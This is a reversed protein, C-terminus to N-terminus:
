YNIKKNDKKFYSYAILFIALAIGGLACIIGIYVIAPRFIFLVQHHGSQIEVGRFATNVELINQKKGDVYVTWGSDYIDSTVLIGPSQSDVSIIVSNTNYEEISLTYDSNKKYDSSHTLNGKVLASKQPMFTDSNILSNLIEISTADDYQEYEYVMWAPATEGYRNHTFLIIDKTSETDYDKNAIFIRKSEEFGIDTITQIFEDSDEASAILYRINNLFFRKDINWNTHMNMVSNYIPNVYGFADYYGLVAAVNRPYCDVSSWSMIRYLNELTPTDEEWIAKASDVAASIKETRGILAYRGLGSLAQILCIICIGFMLGNLIINRINAKLFKWICAGSLICIVTVGSYLTFNKPLINILIIIAIGINLAILNSFLSSVLETSFIKELTIGVLISGSIAVLPIYLFPERIQNYFPIYYFIETFVFSISYFLSLIFTFQAAYFVTPKVKNKIFFGAFVLLTFTITIGLRGINNGLLGTFGTSDVAAESFAYYSMSSMGQVSGDSVFRYSKKLFEIFPLLVPISIAGAILGSIISTITLDVLSTKSKRYKWLYTIYLIGYQLLAFLLSHSACALGILGIVLGNLACYKWRKPCDVNDMFQISLAWMLPMYAYGSFLATWHIVYYIMSSSSTLVSVMFSFTSRIKLIRLLYYSSCAFVSLHISMLANLIQPSLYGTETNYFIRCMLLTIPYFIQSSTIATNPIGMMLNPNWFPYEGEALSHAMSCYVGYAYDGVDGSLKAFPLHWCLVFSMIVLIILCLFEMFYKEKFAVLNKTVFRM